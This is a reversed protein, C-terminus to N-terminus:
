IEMKIIQVRGKQIKDWSACKKPSQWINWLIIFKATQCKHQLVITACPDWTVRKLLLCTGREGTGKGKETGTGREGWPLVNAFLWLPGREVTDVGVLWILVSSLVLNTPINSWMIAFVPEAPTHVISRSGKLNIMLCLLTFVAWYQKKPIPANLEWSVGRKAQKPWVLCPCSLSM